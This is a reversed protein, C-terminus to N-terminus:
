KTMEKPKIVDDITVLGGTAREIATALKKGPKQGRLVNRISSPNYDISEAFAKRTIRQQHLYDRLEM